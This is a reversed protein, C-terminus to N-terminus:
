PDSLHLSSFREQSQENSKYTISLSLSNEFHEIPFKRVSFWQIVFWDSYFRCRVDVFYDIHHSRICLHFLKNTKKRKWSLSILSDFTTTFYLCNYQTHCQDSKIFAHGITPEGSIIEILSLNQYLMYQIISRYIKIYMAHVWNSM